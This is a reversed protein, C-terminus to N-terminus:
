ANAVGDRPQNNKLDSREHMMQSLVKLVKDESRYGCINTKVTPFQSKGVARKKRMGCCSDTNQKYM